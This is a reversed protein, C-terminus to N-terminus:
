KKIVQDIFPNNLERTAHRKNYCIYRNDNKTVPNVFYIEDNLRVMAYLGSNNIDLSGLNENEDSIIRYSKINPFKKALEPSMTSSITVGFRQIGHNPIPINVEKNNELDLVLQNLTLEYSDYQEPINSDPNDLNIENWYNATKQNNEASKCCTLIILLLLTYKSLM